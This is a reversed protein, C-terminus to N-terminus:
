PFSNEAKVCPPKKWRTLMYKSIMSSLRVSPRDILRTLWYALFIIIFSSGSFMMWFAANYSSYRLLQIFLWSSFSGLILFHFTYLAFSIEGFFLFVRAQLVRRILRTELVFVFLCLAGIVPYGSVFAHDDPLFGYFSTELFSYSVSNPYSSFLVFGVFLMLHLWRNSFFAEYKGEKKIDALLVGLWFGVFFTKSFYLCLGFLLASRYKFNSLIALFLFVMISGYLEIKITWLPPNYLYGTRFMSFVINKLLDLINLEGKWFLNFWESHSILHAVDNSYLGLYWLLASMLISALTLGGLRIPRKFIAVMQLGFRSTQGLARYSLVYGSLIFFLGVAFHGAVLLGFPPLYLLTDVGSLEVDGFILHPYFASLYHHFIVIVAAVGRLSDLYLARNSETQDDNM